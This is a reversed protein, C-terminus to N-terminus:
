VIENNPAHSVENEIQILASGLMGQKMEKIKNLIDQAKQIEKLLINIDTSNYILEKQYKM